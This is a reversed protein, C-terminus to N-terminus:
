LQKKIATELQGKTMYGMHKWVQEKNKYLQLFPLGVINMQNALDENEDADIRLIVVKDKMEQGIQDLYPAMKKCPGCWEAHFDVLVLKDDSLMDKFQAMTLGKDADGQNMVEPAVLPLNAASWAMVGGELEYVKEFGMAHLKRVAESSRGGSKCYVFVPKTKDLPVIDQDFTRGMWDANLANPLHGSEFEQPTRVDLIQADNTRNIQTQFTKPAVTKQAYSQCSLTLCAFLLPLLFKM